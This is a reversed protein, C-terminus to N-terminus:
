FQYGFEQEIKNKLSLLEPTWLNTNSTNNDASEYSKNDDGYWATLRPTLVNKDYMKQTGSNGLACYTIFTKLPWDAEEKNLFNEKYELLDKPFEYFEESDFLSLQNMIIKKFILNM